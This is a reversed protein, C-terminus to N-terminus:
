NRWREPDHQALFEERSLRGLIMSRTYMLKEPRLGFYIHIMIVSMLFLAAFGHLVYVVGWSQDTLWYLNRDWWPTDIKVMMLLGSVLALLVFFSTTHHMLKQAPSYKGPKIPKSNSHRLLWSLTSKIEIIDRRGFFMARMDQWICSRVMHVIVVATLAFGSVWHITVWSFNVGVVPLFATFLLILVLGASVWHFLRDILVHRVVDASCPKTDTMVPQNVDQTAGPAV